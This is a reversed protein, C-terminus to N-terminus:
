RAAGSKEMELLMQRFEERAAARALEKETAGAAQITLVVAIPLPRRDREVSV